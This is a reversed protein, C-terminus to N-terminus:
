GSLELDLAKETLFSGRKDRPEKDLYDRSQLRSRCFSNVKIEEVAEICSM